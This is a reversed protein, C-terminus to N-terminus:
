VDETEGQDSHDKRQGHCLKYILYVVCLPGVVRFLVGYTPDDRFELFDLWDIYSSLTGYGILILATLLTKNM